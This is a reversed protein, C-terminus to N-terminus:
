KRKRTISKVRLRVNIFLHNEDNSYKKYRKGCEKETTDLIVIRKRNGNFFFLKNLKYYKQMFFEDVQIYM